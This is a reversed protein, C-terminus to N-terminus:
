IKWEVTLLWIDNDSCTCKLLSRKATRKKFFWKASMMCWVDSIKWIHSLDVVNLFFFMKGAKIRFTPEFWKWERCENATARKVSLNMNTITKNLMRLAVCNSLEFPMCVMRHMSIKIKTIRNGHNLENYNSINGPELENCKLTEPM